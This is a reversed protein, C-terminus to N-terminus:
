MGVSQRIEAAERGAAGARAPMFRNFLAIGRVWFWFLTFDM